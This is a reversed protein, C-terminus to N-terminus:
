FDFSKDLDEKLHDRMGPPLVPDKGNAIYGPTEESFHRGLFLVVSLRSERFPMEVSEKANFM